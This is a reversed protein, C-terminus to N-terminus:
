SAIAIAVKRTFASIIGSYMVITAVQDLYTFSLGLVSEDCEVANLM